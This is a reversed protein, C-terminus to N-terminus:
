EGEMLALFQDIRAWAIPRQDTGGTATPMLGPTPTPGDVGEAFQLPLVFAEVMEEDEPDLSMITVSPELVDNTHYAATTLSYEQGARFAAYAVMEVKMRQTGGGMVSGEPRREITWHTFTGDPDPTLMFVRSEVRGFIIESTFGNFHSHIGTTCEPMEGDPSGWFNIKTRPDVFVQVLYPLVRVDSGKERAIALLRRLRAGGSEM